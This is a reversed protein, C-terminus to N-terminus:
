EDYIKLKVAYVMGEVGGVLLFDKNNFQYFGLCLPSAQM